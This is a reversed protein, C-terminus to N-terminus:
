DQPSRARPKHIVRLVPDKPQVGEGSSVRRIRRGAWPLAHAGLWRIDDSRRGLWSLRPPDPDPSRWDARASGPEVVGTGQWIAELVAEATVRHGIPSLHLRDASWMREDDYHAVGWFDVLWCGHIRAIERTASRLGALRGAVAGLARSRRTPDGFAFLLVQAGGARLRTVGQELDTAVADLDFSRRLADNVGVGLTALDPRMDVAVPVQEEIVQRTLRGRIALNAYEISDVSQDTVLRLAVRDAWGTNRGDSRLVDDLGETFSDGLAVFRHIM